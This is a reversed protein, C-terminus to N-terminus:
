WKGLKEKSDNKTISDRVIFSEDRHTEKLALMFVINTSSGNDVALRKLKCNTNLTHYGPHRSQLDVLSQMDYHTFSLKYTFQTTTIM